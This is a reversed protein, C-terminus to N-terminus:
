EDFPQLCDFGDFMFTWDRVIDAILFCSFIRYDFVNVFLLVFL